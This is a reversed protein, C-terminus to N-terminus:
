NMPIGMWTIKHFMSKRGMRGKALYKKMWEQQEELKITLDNLSRNSQLILSQLNEGPEDIDKLKSKAGSLSRDVKNLMEELETDPKTPTFQKNYFNVYDNFDNVATNFDGMASNYLNVTRNQKLREVELKLHQYRDFIM